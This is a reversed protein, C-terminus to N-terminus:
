RLQQALTETHSAAYERLESWRPGLAPQSGMQKAYDDWTNFRQITLATGAEGDIHELLVQNPSPGPYHLVRVLERAQGPVAQYIGLVYVGATGMMEAFAAWSPGSVFADARRARISTAGPTDSRPPPQAPPVSLTVTPGLHQILAYDWDAGQTNALLFRQTGQNPDQQLSKGLAAGQGPTAKFFSVIYVEAGPKQASVAPSVALLFLLAAVLRSRSM